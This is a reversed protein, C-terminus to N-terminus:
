CVQDSDLLDCYWFGYPKMAAEGAGACTDAAEKPAPYERYVLEGKTFAVPKSFIPGDFVFTHFEGNEGCPDVGAPLDRIFQEDIVRGCFSKDLFQDNVCVVITKFGLRLFDEILFTTDLKWLPFDAVLGAAALKEERYNRLDELFIDGFIAHSFGENKLVSIKANMIAEYDTMSPEPPMELTLLPLGICEAQQQLLSRRVGHMSVRDAATNMSTLLAQVPLRKQKLSYYLALSSDKGGSWNMYAKSQSM